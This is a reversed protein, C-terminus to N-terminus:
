LRQTNEASLRPRRCNKDDRVVALEEVCDGGVNEVKVALPEVRVVAVVVRKNLGLRLSQFVLLALVLCLLFVAFM